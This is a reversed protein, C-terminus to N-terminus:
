QYIEQYNKLMSQISFREEFSRRGAVGLSIRLKCDNILSESAAVLMNMDDSPTVLGNVKDQIIEPNGGVDTVICAKSLSMAELLTMSTGESLSPLLFIDMLQLYDVPNPQFGTFIVKDSM